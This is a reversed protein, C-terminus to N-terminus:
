QHNDDRKEEKQREDYICAWKECAKISDRDTLKFDVYHPCTGCPREEPATRNEKTEKM